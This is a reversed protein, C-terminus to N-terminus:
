PEPQSGDLRGDADDGVDPQEHRHEPERRGGSLQRGEAHGDGPGHGSAGHLERGRASADPGAPPADRQGRGHQRSGDPQKGKRGSQPSARPQRNIFLGLGDCEEGDQLKGLVPCEGHYPCLNIAELAKSLRVVVRKVSSLEKRTADLEEKLPKVINEILIRTANETNTIKVTDAEAEARRTEARAKRLENRINLIGVVTAVLGTGFVVNLIESLEM